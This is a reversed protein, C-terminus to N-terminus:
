LHHAHQLLGRRRGDGIPQVLLGVDVVDQDIVEPATRKTANIQVKKKEFRTARRDRWRMPEGGCVGCGVSVSWVVGCLAGPM